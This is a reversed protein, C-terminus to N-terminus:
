RSRREAKATKLEQSNKQRYTQTDTRCPWCCGSIYQYDMFRTQLTNKTCCVNNSQLLVEYEMTYYSGRLTVCSCSVKACM